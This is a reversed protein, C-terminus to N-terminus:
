NEGSRESVLKVADAVYDNCYKGNKGSAGKLVACLNSGNIAIFGTEFDGKRDPAIRELLELAALYAGCKGGDSRPRPAESAAREEDMGLVDAFARMVSMSCNNGNKHFDRAKTQRDM